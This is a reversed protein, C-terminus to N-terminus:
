IRLEHGSGWVSSADDIIAIGFYSLDADFDYIVKIIIKM